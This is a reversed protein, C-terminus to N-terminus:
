LRDGLLIRDIISMRRDRPVPYATPVPEGLLEQLTLPQTQSTREGDGEPLSALGRELVEDRLVLYRPEPVAPGGMPLDPVPVAGVTAIQVGNPGTAYQGAPGHGSPLAQMALSGALAAALLAAVAQWPRSRRRAAAYGARYMLADRDISVGAPRLGSLAAEFEREAPTLSEENQM